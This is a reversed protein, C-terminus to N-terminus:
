QSADCWAHYDSETVAQSSPHNCQVIRAEGSGGHGWASALQAARLVNAKSHTIAAVLAKATTAVPTSIEAMERLSRCQWIGCRIDHGCLLGHGCLLIQGHWEGRSDMYNEGSGTQSDRLCPCPEICLKSAASVAAPPLKNDFQHTLAVLCCASAQQVAEKCCVPHLRLM